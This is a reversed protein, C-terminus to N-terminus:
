VHLEGNVAQCKSRVSCSCTPWSCKSSPTRIALAASGNVHGNAAPADTWREQNLWTAPNCWPRDLPKTAKYRELGAILQDLSTKTLAKAFATRAAGKGTKEPYAEWWQDFSGGQPPSIPPSLPTLEQPHPPKKDPSVMTVHRKTVIDRLSALERKIELLMRFIEDRSTQHRDRYLRQREAGSMASM